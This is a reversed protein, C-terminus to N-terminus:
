PGFCTPPFYLITHNIGETYTVPQHKNLSSLYIVVHVYKISYLPVKFKYTWKIVYKLIARYEFTVFTGEKSHAPYSLRYLSQAVPQVTQPDFGSPPSIKRVQGSRCQPGGLRRYLQYQTKGTDKWPWKLTSHTDYAVWLVWVPELEEVIADSLRLPTLLLPTVFVLHQLYLQIRDQHHTCTGGSVHLATELYLYVTYHQM